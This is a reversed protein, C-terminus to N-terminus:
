VFVDCVGDPLDLYVSPRFRRVEISTGGRGGVRVLRVGFVVVRFRRWRRM